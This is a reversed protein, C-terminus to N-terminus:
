KRFLSIYIDINNKQQMNLNLFFCFLNSKKFNIDSGNYCIFKIVQKNLKIFLYNFNFIKKKDSISILKFYLYNYFSVIPIYKIACKSTEKFM